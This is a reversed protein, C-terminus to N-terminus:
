ILAICPPSNQDCFVHLAMIIINNYQLEIFYLKMVSNNYPWELHSRLKGDM